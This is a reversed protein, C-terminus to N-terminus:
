FDVGLRVGFQRPPMLTVVSIPFLPNASVGRAALKDTLNTVYGTIQFRNGDPRYTVNADVTAYGRQLQDPTYQVNLWQSTRYITSAQLELKGASGLDIDQSISGSLTWKPARPMAYGSCNVVQAPFTGVQTVTVPCGTAFNGLRLNTFTFSDFKSDLYQASTSLRTGRVPEFQVSLDVGKITSSGVNLTPSYVVTTAGSPRASLINVQQGRYDWWFLEANVQLRNDLFRNKVGVTYATITEPRYTNPAAAAFFGGSKFGTSINAYALSRPAIDMEVGAKWTVKSFKVANNTITIAGNLTNRVQGAQSKDEWTSRLGGVLRLTDAVSYTLQGFAAFSRTSTSFTQLNRSRLLDYFQSTNVKEDFYFAGLVYKLRGGPNSALRAEVSSQHDKEHVTIPFGPGTSVFDLNTERYAPLITFTGVPSEIDVQSHIGWFDNHQYPAAIPPLGVSAFRATAAPSRLGGWEDGTLPLIAGGAGQGRQRFYDVGLRATVGETPRVKLQIRAALDNQDGSGDDFMGDARVRQVSARIAAEDSLAVNAHAQLEFRDFTGYSVFGGGGTKGLEPEAPIINVAGGTANRGYLTGQPGQLVEVRAIDYFFGNTAATRAIYVGDYSLAVASDAYASAFYTGVGRVFINSYSGGSNDVQLSPATRTLDETRTVNANMLAAASVAQIPAAINQTSESRRTATVLIEQLGGANDQAPPNSTQALAPTTWGYCVLTAIIAKASVSITAASRARM